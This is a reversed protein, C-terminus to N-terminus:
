SVQDLEPMEPDYKSLPVWIKVDEDLGSTALVPIHPHPELVNVQKLFFVDAKTCHTMVYRRM